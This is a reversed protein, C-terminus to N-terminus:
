LIRVEVFAARANANGNNYHWGVGVCCSCVQKERFQQHAIRATRVDKAAVLVGSTNMDLRHLLHPEYGLYGIMRNLISGGTFRHVPASRVGATKSVALFKEDEYVIDLPELDAM